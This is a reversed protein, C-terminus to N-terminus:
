DLCQLTTQTDIVLFLIRFASDWARQQDYNLKKLGFDAIGLEKLRQEDPKREIKIEAM